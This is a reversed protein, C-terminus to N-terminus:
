RWWFTVPREGGPAVSGSGNRGGCSPRRGAVPKKFDEIAKAAQAHHHPRALLKRYGLKRLTRRLTQRAISVRFEDRVWPCLDVIRWRVVGHVAPIPGNEVM